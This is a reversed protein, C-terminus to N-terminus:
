DSEPRNQQNDIILPSFWHTMVVAIYTVFFVVPQVKYFIFVIAFLAISSVIKLAEGIYFGKVIERAARAGSHRFLKRAFLLSPLIAVLGGLLASISDNKGKILLVTLAILIVLISQAILLKNINQKAQNKKM